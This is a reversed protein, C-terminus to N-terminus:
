RAADFRTALLSAAAESTSLAWRCRSSAALARAEAALVSVDSWVAESRLRSCSVVSRAVRSCAPAQAVTVMVGGAVDPLPDESEVVVVVVEVVAGKADAVVVVTGAGGAVVVVVVAVVVVSGGPEGVVVVTGGVVVVTGAVVVVVVVVIGGVVVVVVTGVTAEWPADGGPTAAPIEASCPQTAVKAGEDLAQRFGPTEKLWRLGARV